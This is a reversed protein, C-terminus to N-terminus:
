SLTECYLLNQNLMLHDRYRSLLDAAARLQEGCAGMITLIYCTDMLWIHERWQLSRLPLRWQGPAGPLNGGYKCQVVCCYWGEAEFRLLHENLMLPMSTFGHIKPYVSDSVFNYLFGSCKEHLWALLVGLILSM